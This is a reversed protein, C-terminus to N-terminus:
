GFPGSQGLNALLVAGDGNVTVTGDLNADGFHTGILTEILYSVDGSDVVRSDDLDFTPDTSSDHIAATLLDVDTADRIGNFDFDGSLPGPADILDLLGDGDTDAACAAPALLLSPVVFVLTSLVILKM